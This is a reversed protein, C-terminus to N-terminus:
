AGVGSQGLTKVEQSGQLPVRYGLNRAGIAQTGKALKELPATLRWSVWVGALIGIGSVVVLAILSGQFRLLGFRQELDPPPGSRELDPWLLFFIIPVLIAAILIV